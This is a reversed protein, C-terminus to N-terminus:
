STSAVYRRLRLSNSVVFISSLAMAASAHMPHLVGSMALPIALVNYLFAWFLNVRITKMTQRSLAIGDVVSLLDNNVVILSASNQALDSGSGMVIGLDAKALAPADNIGDGVMAVRDGTAQLRSIETQKADPLVESIVRSINTEKAVRDCSNKNDGSLLTVKIGMEKLKTIAIKATVRVEDSLLILAEATQGRGVLVHTSANHEVEARLEPLMDDFFNAKGVRTYVGAVEGEIGLGPFNKFNKIELANSASSSIARAIPHESRSELAAALGMLLEKNDNPAIIEAVYLEGNTITGTKDLVVHNIRRTDELVAASRIIIGLQAAKGTGVLVALPTALGLACPCSVILIAVAATFAEESQDGILLRVILTGIALIIICPIFFQAIRDAMKQVPAKSGQAEEVLRVIKAAATDAGIATARITLTGDGNISGGLIPDGAAMSRPQSEGTLMATDVDSIGTVVIGDTAVTEGPRVIFEAGIQLSDLTIDSGDILRIMQSRSTALNHLAAASHLTARAEWWKGLLVFATIVSAADFYLHNESGTLLAISSWLWSALTGLSVLFDMGLSAQLLQVRAARHFKSGCWFVSITALTATAIDGLESSITMTLIMSIVAASIAPILRIKLFKEQRSHIETGDIHEPTTYGLDSITKILLDRTTEPGHSITSKTTAFNVHAEFVGSIEKLANEIRAACASCSMGEVLIETKKNTSSQNIPM